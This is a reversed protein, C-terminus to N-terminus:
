GRCRMLVGYEDYKEVVYDYERALNTLRDRQCPDIEVVVVSAGGREQIQRLLKKYLALGGDEAYLAIVPEFRLDKDSLWTWSRDVYPLNAVVIEFDSVGEVGELLDSQRFDVKAGLVDANQQAVELADRSIDVAVMEISRDELSLTTAICGSGTGVELIQVASKNLSRVEELVLEILEETEPRPILVAPNVLFDRGYFERRGLIYALPEGAERRALMKELKEWKEQSIGAGAHAVLYSRDVDQPLAEGLGALLILEADLSDIRKKALKLWKEITM